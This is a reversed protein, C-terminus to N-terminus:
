EATCTATYGRIYMPTGFISSHLISTKLFSAGNSVKKILMMIQVGLTM